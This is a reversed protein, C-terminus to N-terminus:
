TKSSSDTIDRFEAEIADPHPNPKNTKESSNPRTYELFFGQLIKRVAFIIFLIATLKLIGM